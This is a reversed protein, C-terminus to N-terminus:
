MLNHNKLFIGMAQKSVDFIQALEGVSDASNRVKYFAKKVQNKPMLFCTGLMNAQCEVSPDVDMSTCNSHAAAVSGSKYLEQHILWHALEHAITFRLRGDNRCKLLSVDLVITGGKVELLAYRKEEPIWIPLKTGNFVTCGLVDGNQRLHRYEIELGFHYEVLEEIPVAQPEGLILSEDYEKLENRAITELGTESFYKM